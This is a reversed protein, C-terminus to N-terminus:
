PEQRLLANDGYMYRVVHRNGQPDTWSFTGYNEPNSVPDLEPMWLDACSADVTIVESAYNADRSTGLSASVDDPVCILQLLATTLSPTILGVVAVVILLETLTVGRQRGRTRKRMHGSMM